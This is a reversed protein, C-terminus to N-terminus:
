FDRLSYSPEELGAEAGMGLLPELWKLYSDWEPRQGAKRDYLLQGTPEVTSARPHLWLHRFAEHVHWRKFLEYFIESIKLGGFPESIGVHLHINRKRDDLSISIWQVNHERSVWETFQAATEAQTEELGVEAWNLPRLAFANVAMCLFVAATFIELNRRVM